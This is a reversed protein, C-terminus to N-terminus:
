NEPQKPAPMPKSTQTSTIPDSQTQRRIFTRDTVHTGDPSFESPQGYLGVVEYVNDPQLCLSYSIKEGSSVTIGEIIQKKWGQQGDVRLSYKEAPDIDPITFNGEADSRVKAVLRKELRLKIDIGPVVAGNMDIILGFIQGKKSDIKVRKVVETQSDLCDEPKQGFGVSVFGLLASLAVGALTAVRKRIARLGVPCDQTLITEDPRQYMRVCLRGETTQVLTEIERRSLGVINYVNRECSGCLRTRDDGFM